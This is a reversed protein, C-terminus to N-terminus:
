LARQPRVSCSGCRRTAQEVTENSFRVIARSTIEYVEGTPSVFEEPEIDIAEISKEASLDHDM